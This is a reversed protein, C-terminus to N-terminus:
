ANSRLYEIYKKFHKILQNAMVWPNVYLQMNHIKEITFFKGEANTVMSGYKPFNSHFMGCRGMEYFDKTLTDYAKKHFDRSKESHNKTPDSLSKISNLENNFVNELGIIFIKKSQGDSSEGEIYQGIMEFYSICLTLIAMADGIDTLKTRPRLRENVRDEFVDIKDSLTPNELKDRKFNKSIFHEDM